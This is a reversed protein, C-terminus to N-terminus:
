PAPAGYVAVETSDLFDCGSFNGPCTGGLDAVQTSIMTFRVFQINTGTGANLPVTNLRRQTPTFHGTAAVTFTVGDTSTELKFDGTSASGADGCTNAPNIQLETINM